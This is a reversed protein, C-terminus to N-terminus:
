APLRLRGRLLFCADPAASGELSIDHVLNETPALYAEGPAIRVRVIPYGGRRVAFDRPITLWGGVPDGHDRALEAVALNVFVLYRDRDGLNISLQAHAACGYGGDHWRDVHMGILRAGDAFRHMTSTRLGGVQVRVGQIALDDASALYAAVHEMATAMAQEADATRIPAGELTPAVGAAVARLPAVVAAPMAVIAVARAPAEGRDACRLLAREADSPARWPGAPVVAAHLYALEGCSAEGILESGSSLSIREDTEAGCYIRMGARLAEM